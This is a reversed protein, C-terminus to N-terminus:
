ELLRYGNKCSTALLASKERKAEEASWFQWPGVLKPDGLLAPIGGLPSARILNVDRPPVSVM